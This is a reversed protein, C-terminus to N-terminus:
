PAKSAPTKTLLSKPFRDLWATQEAQAQTLSADALRTAQDATSTAAPFDGAEFKETASELLGPTRAWAYGAQRSADYQAQARDLAARALLAPDKDGSQNSSQEAGKETNQEASNEASQEASQETNPDTCAVLLLAALLPAIICSTVYSFTRSTVYSFVHSTSTFPSIIPFINPTKM